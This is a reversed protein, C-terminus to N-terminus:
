YEPPMGGEAGKPPPPPPKAATVIDDIRLIMSSAEAASRIAQEKIKTPELVGLKSMGKVKGSVFDVGADFGTKKAHASRLAVMTDVPDLGANEALTRPITELADAFAEIALQERGGVKVAYNRLRKALEAEIAGGGFVIRNKDVVAVLASLADDMAREAEDVLKNLSATILIAVSKPNKCKEVFVNKEEGVKREEVLGASGLDDPSLDDLNTVIKAGTAKALKEVDSKKVRQVGLIGEKALFYQVVDDIGKQSLVVNAGSSRIKKAMNQMLMTEEDKFAKMQEPDRIRIEASFETKEVDLECDVLAIRANEMSKPMRTHAVEKDLVMGKILRTDTLSTTVRKFLLVNDLDAFNAEGRKEIIQEVADIALEAFHEKAEGIGKGSMATFAVKKLTAKDKLDIPKSLQNLAEIAMDSAKKFGTVITTPHIDDDLLEEAKRLLESALIVATTTGDGVEDDQTKAIEVIMKATPHQVDIEDLVTAGDSTVTIDGLTDVLMKDMGRPGLTSKVVEGIVRATMINSRQAERGRSRASGEKLILVPQGALYSM